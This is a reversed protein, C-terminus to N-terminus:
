MRMAKKMAKAYPDTGTNVGYKVKPAKVIAPSVPSKVTRTPATMAKVATTMKGGIRQLGRSTPKVTRGFMSGFVGRHRSPRSTRKAKIAGFLGHGKYASKSVKSGAAQKKLRSGTIKNKFTSGGASRAKIGTLMARIPSSSKRKTAKRMRAILGGFARRQRTATSPLGRRSTPSGVRRGVGARSRRRTSAARRAALNQSRTNPRRTPARRKMAALRRRAALLRARRQAPTMRGTTGPRRPIRRTPARRKRAAALARRRAAAMQARRQAATPTRRRSTSGRQSQMQKQADGRKVLMGHKKTLAELKANSKGTKFAKEQMRKLNARATASMTIGGRKPGRKPIAVIKKGTAKPVGRAIAARAMQDKSATSPAKRKAPAAAAKRQDGYKRTMGVMQKTIAGAGKKIAGAQANGLLRKQAASLAGGVAKKTRKAPAKKKYPM